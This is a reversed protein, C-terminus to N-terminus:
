ANGVQDSHVGAVSAADFSDFVMKVGTSIGGVMQQPNAYDGGNLMVGLKNCAILIISQLEQNTMTDMRGKVGKLVKELVESAQAIEQQTVTKQQM